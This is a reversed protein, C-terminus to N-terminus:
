ATANQPKATLTWTVTANYSKTSSNKADGGTTGDATKLDLMADNEATTFSANIPGDNYSEPKLDILAKGAGTDASNITIDNTMLKLGTSISAGQDDKLETPKLNLSYAKTDSSDAKNTFDSISANLTFGPANKRSETVTLKGQGQSDTAPNGNVDNNALAVTTGEAANGFGFDPVADLTLLGSQVTVNANSQATASGVTKGDGADYAIALNSDSAGLAGADEGKELDTTPEYAKTTSNYKASTTAAQATVAPAIAGLVIGATALSGALVSKSLKM